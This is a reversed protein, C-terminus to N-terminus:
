ILPLLLCRRTTLKYGAVALSFKQGDTAMSDERRIGGKGCNESSQPSREFTPTKFSQLDSGPSFAHSVPDIGSPERQKITISLVSVRESKGSRETGRVM